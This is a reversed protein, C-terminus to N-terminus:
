TLMIGSFEFAQNATVQGDANRSPTNGPNRDPKGGGQVNTVENAESSRLSHLSPSFTCRAGARHCRLCGNKDQRKPCRLKQSHCRDCASRLKLRTHTTPTNMQMPLKAKYDALEHEVHVCTTFILQM